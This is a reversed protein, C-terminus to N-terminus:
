AISGFDLTSTATETVLGFDLSSGIDETVFRWDSIFSELSLSYNTELYRIDNTILFVYQGPSLQIDSYDGNITTDDEEDGSNISAQEIVYGLDNIPLETRHTGNELRYFSILTNRNTKQQTSFQSYNQTIKISRPLFLKFTFFTTQQRTLGGHTNNINITRYTATLNGLNIPNNISDGLKPPLPDSGFNTTPGYATPGTGGTPYAEVTQLNVFGLNVPLTTLFRSM